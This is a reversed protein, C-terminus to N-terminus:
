GYKQENVCIIQKIILEFVNIQFVAGCEKSELSNIFMSVYM